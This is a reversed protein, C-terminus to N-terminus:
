LAVVFVAALHRRCGIRGGLFNGTFGRMSPVMTVVLVHNLSRFFRFSFNLRMRVLFGM